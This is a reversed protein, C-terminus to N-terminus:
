YEHNLKHLAVLPLDVLIDGSVEDGREVIVALVQLPLQSHIEITVVEAVGPVLHHVPSEQKGHREFLLAHLQVLDVEVGPLHRLPHAHCHSTHVRLSLVGLRWVVQLLRLQYSQHVLMTDSSVGTNGLVDLVHTVSVINVHTTGCSLIAASTLHDLHVSALWSTSSSSLLVLLSGGTSVHHGPAQAECEEAAKFLQVSFQTFGLDSCVHLFLYLSTQMM